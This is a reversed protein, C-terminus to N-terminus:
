LHIRADTQIAVPPSLYFLPGLITSRGHIQIGLEVLVASVALNGANGAMHVQDRTRVFGVLRYGAATAVVRKKGM